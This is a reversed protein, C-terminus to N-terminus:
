RADLLKGERSPQEAQRHDADPSQGVPVLVRYHPHPPGLGARARRAGIISGYPGYRPIQMPDTM